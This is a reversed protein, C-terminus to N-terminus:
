LDKRRRRFINKNKMKTLILLLWLIAGIQIPIAIFFMFWKNDFSATLIISLFLTWLLVSAIVPNCYNRGWISNFVLLVISSVPIAYIFALYVKEFDPSAMRIVVYSITAIIWVVLISLLTIIIHEQVKSLGKKKLINTETLMADIKVGYFQSLQYLIDIDPVSEGREWKSIAKDSYNLKNALESQTLNNAKRLEQLNKALTDKVSSSVTIEEINNEKNMCINYDIKSKKDLSLFDM